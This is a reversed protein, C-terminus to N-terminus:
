NNRQIIEFSFDGSNKYKLYRSYLSSEVLFRNPVVLVVSLFFSFFDTTISYAPKKSPLIRWFQFSLGKSRQHKGLTARRSFVYQRNAVYFRNQVLIAPKWDMQYTHVWWFSGRIRLLYRGVKRCIGTVWTKRKLKIYRSRLVCGLRVHRNYLTKRLQRM